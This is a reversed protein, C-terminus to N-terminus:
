QAKHSITKTARQEPIGWHLSPYPAHRHEHPQAQRACVLLQERTIGNGGSDYFRANTKGGEWGRGAEGGGRGEGEGRM